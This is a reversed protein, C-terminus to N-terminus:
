GTAWRTSRRPARGAAGRGDALQRDRPGAGAAVQALGSDLERADDDTGVVHFAFDKLM